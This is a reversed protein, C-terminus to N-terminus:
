PTRGAPPVHGPAPHVPPVHAPTPHASAPHAPAPHAPAPHASAPHGSAPHAPAPHAPAPHAPVPHHATVNREGSPRRERRRGGGPRSRGGAALALVLALVLYPVASVAFIVSHGTVASAAAYCGFFAICTVDTGLGALSTVTARAPGTIRDQLRADVLVTAMQFLCFAVAIVAFGAPVGSIAGAGLALAGVALIVAIARDTGRRGAAALLGGLAGGASVLLVLLPVAYEAVGTGAALLPVYEDLAGWLATVAIVLLVARRVPRSSRMERVGDRLIDTYSGSSAEEPSSEEPSQGRHEPFTTAVAACLVCALVSAAGLLPYGGVALAPAALATAVMVAGTSLARARGMITAYRGAADLRELETYVLAEMAGSQLAGSTGWLVFGAAFAWYSPAIVWLAYGVASLLPAVVLLLRRSVADAWVGSPVEMVLSTVSWIVFLSSIEATSLGTDVFLLAYVPYLLILDDLFTYGYLTAALREARRDPGRLLSIMM